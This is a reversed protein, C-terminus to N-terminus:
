SIWDAERWGTWGWGLDAASASAPSGRPPPGGDGGYRRGVAAMDEKWKKGAVEWVGAGPRRRFGEGFGGRGQGWVTDM